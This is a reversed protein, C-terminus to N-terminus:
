SQVRRQGVIAAPNGAVIANAPIDTRVVAGAGVIAGDGITVGALVVAGYGLWVDCGIRVTAENMAQDTVPSGDNYRYSAATVMVSPAILADAGIEIRAAGPGAWLSTNAGVHVRDGIVINKGNSFSVTPSISVGQGRTVQRLETVHTYNYYNLVKIAHAYARPDLAARILRAFRQLRSTRVKHISDSTM